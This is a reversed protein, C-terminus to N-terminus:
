DILGGAVLGVSWEFRRDVYTSFVDVFAGIMVLFGSVLGWYGFMVFWRADSCLDLLAAM